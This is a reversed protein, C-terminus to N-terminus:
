PSVESVPPPPPSPPVVGGADPAQVTLYLIVLWHGPPKWASTWSVFVPEVAQDAHDRVQGKASPWFIVRSQFASQVWDPVDTVTLFTLRFPVTADPEDTPKPKVPEQVPASASGVDKSSPSRLQVTAQVGPHATTM